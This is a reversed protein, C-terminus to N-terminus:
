LVLHVLFVGVFAFNIVSAPFPDYFLGSLREIHIPHVLVGPMRFDALGHEPHLISLSPSGRSYPSSTEPEQDPNTRNDNNDRNIPIQQYDKHTALGQM